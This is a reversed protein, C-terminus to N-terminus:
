GRIRKYLRIKYLLQRLEEATKSGLFSLVRKIQEIESAFATIHSLRDACNLGLPSLSFRWVGSNQTIKILGRAKLFPLVHNYRKDWPGYHHRIMISQLSETPSISERLYAALEILFNRIDFVVTSNQLSLHRTSLVAINSYSFYERLMCNPLRM